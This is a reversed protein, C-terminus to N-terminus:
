NLFKYLRPEDGDLCLSVAVLATEVSEIRQMNRNTNVIDPM